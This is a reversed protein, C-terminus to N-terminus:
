SAARRIRKPPFPGYKALYDHCSQRDYLIHWGTEGVRRYRPGRGERTWRRLTTEVVNLIAAAEAAKIWDRQASPESTEIPESV